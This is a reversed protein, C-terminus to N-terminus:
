WLTKLPPDCACYSDCKLRIAFLEAEVLAIELRIPRDVLESIDSRTKWRPKAFLHDGSIPVAEDWTYGPIPQATMGDLVQVRIGTHIMSQMNLSIEGARPIITKTRLLGQRGWTKLSCFGDLRMEYLM